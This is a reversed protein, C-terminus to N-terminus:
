MSILVFFLQRVMFLLSYRTIRQVPTILLSPLDVVKGKQLVVKKLAEDIWDSFAKSKKCGILRDIAQSYFVAYSTYVGLFQM